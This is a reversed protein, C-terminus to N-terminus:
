LVLGAVFAAALLFGVLIATVLNEDPHPGYGTQDNFNRKAM